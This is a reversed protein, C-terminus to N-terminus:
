VCPNRIKKQYEAARLNNLHAAHSAHQLAKAQIGAGKLGKGVEVTAGAMGEAAVKGKGVAEATEGAASAVQAEASAQQKTTNLTQVKTNYIEKTIKGQKLQEDLVKIESEYAQEIAQQKAKVLDTIARQKQEATTAAEIEREAAAIAANSNATAQEAQAKALQLSQQQEQKLLKTSVPLNCGVNNILSQM